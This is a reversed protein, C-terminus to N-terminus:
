SAAELKGAKELQKAEQWFEEMRAINKVDMEQGTERMRKEVHSFRRKFKRNCALLATEPNIETYYGIVSVTFLLDGFEEVVDDHTKEAIAEQLEALEEEIKHYYNGLSDWRFGAACVRKQIEHTLALSPMVDPLSDLIGAPASSNAEKAAAEKEQRKTQEWLAAIDQKGAIETDGFVWPHRRRVKADAVAAVDEFTFWGKEAAHQCYLAIHFLLDGLEGKIEAPNKQAIADMLEYTEGQTFGALSDFTQEQHWPCGQKPDRLQRVANLLSQIPASM